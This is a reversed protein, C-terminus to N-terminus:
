PSAEQPIEPLLEASNLASAAIQNISIGLVLSIRIALLLGINVTGGKEIEHFHAKSTLCSDGAEQLSLGMATRKQKILDGLNM